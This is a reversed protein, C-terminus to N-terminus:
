GLVGLHHVRSRAFPRMWGEGMMAMRSYGITWGDYFVHRDLAIGHHSM